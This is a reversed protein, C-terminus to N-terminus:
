HRLTQSAPPLPLSSNFFHGGGEGATRHNTFTRSLFSLYFFFDGDCDAKSMSDDGNADNGDNIDVGGNDNDGDDDDDAEGESHVKRKGDDDDDDDDGGDNSCSDAVKGDGANDGDYDSLWDRTTIMTFLVTNRQM